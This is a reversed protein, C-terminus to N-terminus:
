VSRDLGLASGQRVQSDKISNFVYTRKLAWHAGPLKFRATSVDTKRVARSRLSRRLDGTHLVSGAHEKEGRSVGEKRGGKRGAYYGWFIQAMSM